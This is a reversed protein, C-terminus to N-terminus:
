IGWLKLIEEVEKEDAAKKFKAHSVGRVRHLCDEWTQHRVLVGDVLSLYVYAKKRQKTITKKSLDPKPINILDFAYDRSDGDFLIIKERDAFSQAIKDARENGPIGAHGLVHEWHIKSHKQYEQLDKNLREWLDKNAVQTGSSTMWANRRWKELHRTVGMIVYTSDLYFVVSGKESRLLELGKCVAELEMRNNTTHEVHAGYECIRKEELWYVILGWGGRGPNGKCAGDTYLIFSRSM